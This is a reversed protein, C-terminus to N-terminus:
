RSVINCDPIVVRDRNTISAFKQGNFRVNVAVFSLRRPCLLQHLGFSVASNVHM